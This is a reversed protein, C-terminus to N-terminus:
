RGYLGSAGVMNAPDTRHVHDACLNIYVGNGAATSCHKAQDPPQHGSAIFCCTEIADAHNSRGNQIRGPNRDLRVKRRNQNRRCKERRLAPELNTEAPEPLVSALDLNPTDEAIKRVTEFRGPLERLAAVRDDVSRSPAAFFWELERSALYRRESLALTEATVPCRRLDFAARIMEVANSRRQLGFRSLRKGPSVAPKSLGANKGTWSAKFISRM